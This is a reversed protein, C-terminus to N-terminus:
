TTDFVLFTERDLPVVVDHSYEDQTVICSVPRPPSSARTWALVHALTHLEGLEQRIATLRESTVNGTTLIPVSRM